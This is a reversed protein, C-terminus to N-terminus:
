QRQLLRKLPLVWVQHVLWAVIFLSGLRPLCDTWQPVPKEATLYFFIEAQM